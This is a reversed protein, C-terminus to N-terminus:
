DKRNTLAAPENDTLWVRACQKTDCKKLCDNVWKPRKVARTTKLLRPGAPQQHPYDHIPCVTGTIKGVDNCNCRM